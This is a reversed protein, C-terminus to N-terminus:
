LPRFIDRTHEYVDERYAKYRNILFTQLSNRSLNYTYLWKGEVGDYVRDVVSAVISETPFRTIGRINVICYM